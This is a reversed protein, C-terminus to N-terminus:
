GLGRTADVTGDHNVEVKVEATSPGLHDSINRLFSMCTDVVM